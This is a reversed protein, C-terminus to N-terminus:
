PSFYFKDLFFTGNNNIQIFEADLTDFEAFFKFGKQNANGFRKIYFHYCFIKYILHFVCKNYVM